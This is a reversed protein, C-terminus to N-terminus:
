PYDVEEQPDRGHKEVAKRHFHERLAGSYLPATHTHTAAVCINEAPIKTQEQALQRAKKTVGAQLGILDCIVIAAKVDGQKLVMAKAHLPDLTGTSLRENFYGSMRYGVPPTIDVSAFGAMLEDAAASSVGITLTVLITLLKPM